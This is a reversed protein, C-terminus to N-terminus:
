STQAEDFSTPNPTQRLLSSFVIYTTAFYEGIPFLAPNNSDFTLGVVQSYSTERQVEKEKTILSYDDIFVIM